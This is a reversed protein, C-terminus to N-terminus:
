LPLWLLVAIACLVGLLWGVLVDGVFHIGIVVRAAAVLAALALLSIGLFPNFFFLAGGLASMRASHGSPFSYKDYKITVFGAPDRPRERRLTYKIGFVVLATVILAVLTDFVAAQVDPRRFQWGAWYALALGGFVLTGDGLHAIRAALRWRPHGSPISIRNSIIEDLKVPNKV